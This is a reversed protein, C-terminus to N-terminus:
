FFLNFYYFGLMILVPVVGWFVVLEKNTLPNDYKYKSNRKFIKKNKERIDMVSIFIGMFLIIIVMVIVPDDTLIYGIFFAAVSFVQHILRPYLKNRYILIRIYNGGDLPLIPILNIFNIIIFLRATLNLYFSDVYLHIIYLISGIIIGPLPGGLLVILQEKASYEMKKGDAFAILGYFQLKLDRYGFMKMFFLHGIEHIIIIFFAMTFLLGLFHNYLTFGILVLVMFLIELDHIKVGKIIFQSDIANLLAKLIRNKHLRSM